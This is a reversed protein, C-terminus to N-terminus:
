EYMDGATVAGETAEVIARLHRHAPRYRANEWNWVTQRSVEAREALARRFATREKGPLRLSFQRLHM